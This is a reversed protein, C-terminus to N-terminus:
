GTFSEAATSSSPQIMESLGQGPLYVERLHKRNALGFVEQIARRTM